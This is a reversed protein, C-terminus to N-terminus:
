GRQATVYIRGVSATRLRRSFFAIVDLGWGRRAPHGHDAAQDTTRAHLMFDKHTAEAPKFGTNVLGFKRGTERGTSTGFGAVNVDIREFRHPMVLRSYKL